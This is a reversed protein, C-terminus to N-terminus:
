PMKLTSVGGNYEELLWGIEEGSANVIWPFIWNLFADFPKTGTDPDRQNFMDTLFSLEHDEGAQGKNFTCYANNQSFVGYVANDIVNHGKLVNAAGLTTLFIYGESDNEKCREILSMLKECTPKVESITMFEDYFKGDPRNGAEDLFEVIHEPTHKNLRTKIEAILVSSM